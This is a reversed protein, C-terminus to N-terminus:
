LWHDRHIGCARSAWRPWRTQDVCGNAVGVVCLLRMRAASLRLGQGAGCGTPGPLDLRSRDEPRVTTTKSKSDAADSQPACEMKQDEDASLDDREEEEESPRRDVAPMAPMPAADVIPSRMHGNGHAGAETLEAADALATANPGAAHRIGAIM